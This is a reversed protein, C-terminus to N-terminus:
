AYKAVWTIENENIEGSDTHNARFLGYGLDSLIHFSDAKIHSVSKDISTTKLAVVPSGESKVSAYIIGDINSDDIFIKALISTVKYLNGSYPRRLIDSFFADCLIHSIFFDETFREKQYQYVKCYYEYVDDKIFPPKIKKFVHDYIGIYYLNIDCKTVSRLINIAQTPKANIEAFAVNIAGREDDSYVCGYYISEKEKNLRGINIIESKDITIYSLEEVKKELHVSNYARARLIKMGPEIPMFLTTTFNSILNSLYGEVESDTLSIEGDIFNNLRKIVLSVYECFLDQDNLLIIKKDILEKTRKDLM